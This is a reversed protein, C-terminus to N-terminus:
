EWRLPQGTAAIVAHWFSGNTNLRKKETTLLEMPVHIFQDHLLGIVMGTKGAMAAHVANRAFFDCLIADESDAPVSRILYSPDFYKFTFPVQEARFYQEIRARLYTGIDNLKLNGSADREAAGCHLLDQGAGEAIVILAHARKLVRRKLTALFGHEGELQLQVEPILAFNVDQSAITAGAAICGAERGM